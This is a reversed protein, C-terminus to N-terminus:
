NSKKKKLTAVEEQLKAIDADLAKIVVNRLGYISDNTNKLDSLINNFVDEMLRLRQDLLFCLGGLTISLFFATMLMILPVDM